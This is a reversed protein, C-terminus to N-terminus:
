TYKSNTNQKTKTRVAHACPNIFLQMKLISKTDCVWLKYDSHHCFENTYKELIQKASKKKNAISTDDCSSETVSFSTLIRGIEILKTNIRNM